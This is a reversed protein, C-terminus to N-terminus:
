GKDQDFVSLDEKYNKKWLVTLDSDGNLTIGTEVPM